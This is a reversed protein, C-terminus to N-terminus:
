KRFIGMLRKLYNEKSKHSGKNAAESRGRAAASAARKKIEFHRNIRRIQRVTDEVMLRLSGVSIGKGFITLLLFGQMAENLHINGKKGKHYLLSFQTEGIREAMAKVASFNSAALVAISEIDYNVAGNDKMVIISGATDILAACQAEKLILNEQLAEGLLDIQKESYMPLLQAM